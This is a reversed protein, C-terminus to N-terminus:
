TQFELRLDLCQGTKKAANSVFYGKQRNLGGHATQILLAKVLATKDTKQLKNSLKNKM